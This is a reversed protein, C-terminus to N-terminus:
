TFMLTLLDFQKERRTVASTLSTSFFAFRTSTRLTLAAPRQPRRAKIVWSNECMRCSQENTPVHVTSLQSAAYLEAITTAPRVRQQRAPHGQQDINRSAKRDILWDILKNLWSHLLLFLHWCFLTVCYRAVLFAFREDWSTAWIM